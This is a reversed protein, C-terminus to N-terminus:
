GRLRNCCQLPVTPGVISPKQLRNVACSWTRRRRRRRRRMMMMMMVIMMTMMMMMIVMVM